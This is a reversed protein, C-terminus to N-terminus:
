AASSLVGLAADTTAFGFTVTSAQPENVFGSESGDDIWRGVADAFEQADAASDWATRFLVASDRGDTWGRYVGGNWGAAADAALGQDLRLDLMARLWEEGVQMVDLDGWGQGLQESLDAVNPTPPAPAPFQEPHMVQETTSPLDRIADDVQSLGGRSQLSTVFSQGADYPWLQLETIFPPVGEPIGAGGADGIGGGLDPFRTLVQTAFYQASGEVAGIAAQFPEDRCANSLRDLRSLDFHQDDIAHTLEHALVFHETMDLQDDDGIFVLEGDVPNYFGVVQGTQFALLANRITVNRPIVGITQWAVTRRDYFETPYTDDFAATLERAIQEQTVARAKVPHLYRLGRVTEVEREVEQISAPVPGSSGGGTSVPTPAVCLKRMAAGSRAAGTDVPEVHLGQSGGNTVSPSPTDSSTSPAESTDIQIRIGDGTCAVAAFTLVALAAVGVRWRRVRRRIV